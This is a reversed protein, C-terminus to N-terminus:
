SITEFFAAGRIRLAEAYKSPLQRRLENSIAKVRAKMEFPELDKAISLFRVRNFDPYAGQIADSM